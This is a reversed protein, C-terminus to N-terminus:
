CHKGRASSKQLGRRARALRWSRCRHSASCEAGCSRPPTPCSARSSTYCRTPCHCGSLTVLMFAMLLAYNYRKKPPQEVTMTVTDFIVGLLPGRQDPPRLKAESLRVGVLPCHDLLIRLADTVLQKTPGFDYVDAVFVMLVVGSDPGHAAAIHRGVNEM